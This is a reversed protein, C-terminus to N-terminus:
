PHLTPRQERPISAIYSGPAVCVLTRRAFVLLTVDQVLKRGDFVLLTESDLSHRQQHVLLTESSSFLRQAEMSQM